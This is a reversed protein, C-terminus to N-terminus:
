TNPTEMVRHASGEDMAARPAGGGTYIIKIMMEKTEVKYLM